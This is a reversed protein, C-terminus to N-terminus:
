GLHRLFIVISTGPGMCEGLNVTEGNVNTLQASRLSAATVSAPIEVNSPVECPAQAALATTPVLRSTPSPQFAHVAMSLSAVLAVARYALKM